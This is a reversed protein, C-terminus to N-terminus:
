FPIDNTDMDTQTSGTFDVKELEEPTEIHLNEEFKDGNELHELVEDSLCNELRDMFQYILEHPSPENEPLEEETLGYKKVTDEFVIRKKIWNITGITEDHWATIDSHSSASIFDYNLKLAKEIRQAFEFGSDGYFLIEYYKIPEEYSKWYNFRIDVEISEEYEDNKLQVTYIPCGYDDMVVGNAMEYKTGEVAEVLEKLSVCRQDKSPYFINSAM